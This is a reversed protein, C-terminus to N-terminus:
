VFRIASVKTLTVRAELDLNENYFSLFLKNGFATKEKAIFGFKAFYEKLDYEMMYKMVKVEKRYEDFDLIRNNIEIFKM